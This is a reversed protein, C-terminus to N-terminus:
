ISFENNYSKVRVDTNWLPVNTGQVKLETKGIAKYLQLETKENNIVSM